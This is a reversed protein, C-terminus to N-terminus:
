LFILLIASTYLFPVSNSSDMQTTISSLGANSQMIGTSTAFGTRSHQMEISDNSLNGSPNGQEFQVPSFSSAGQSSSLQSKQQQENAQDIPEQKVYNGSILATNVQEEKVSSQYNVSNHQM